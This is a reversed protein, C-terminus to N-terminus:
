INKKKLFLNKKKKSFLFFNFEPRGLDESNAMVIIFTSSGINKQQITQDRIQFFGYESDQGCGLSFGILGSRGPSLILNNLSSM